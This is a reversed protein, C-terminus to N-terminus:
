KECPKNKEELKKLYKKINRAYFIKDYLKLVDNFDNSKVIYNCIQKLGEDANDFCILFDSIDNALMDLPHNVFSIKYDFKEYYPLNKITEYRNSHRPKIVMKVYTDCDINKSSTRIKDFDIM